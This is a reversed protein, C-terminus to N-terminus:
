GGDLKNEDDKNAGYSDNNTYDKKWKKQIKFFLKPHLIRFRFFFAEMLPWNGKKMVTLYTRKKM